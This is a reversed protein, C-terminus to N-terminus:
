KKNRNVLLEFDNVLVEMGSSYRHFLYVLEEDGSEWYQHHINKESESRESERWIIKMVFAERAIKLQVKPL